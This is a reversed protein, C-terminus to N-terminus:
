CHLNAVFVVPWIILRLSVIFCLHITADETNTPQPNIYITHLCSFSSAPLNHSWQQIAHSSNHIRERSQKSWTYLNDEVGPATCWCGQACTVPAQFYTYEQRFPCQLGEAGRNLWTWMLCPKFPLTLRLRQNKTPSAKMFGYPCQRACSLSSLPAGDWGWQCWPGQQWSFFMELEITRGTAFSLNGNLVNLLWLDFCGVTSSFQDLDPKGFLCAFM